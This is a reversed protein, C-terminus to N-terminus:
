GEIISVIKFISTKINCIKVYCKQFQITDLKALCAINKVKISHSNFLMLM